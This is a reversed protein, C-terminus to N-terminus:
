VSNAGGFAGGIDAKFPLAFETHGPGIVPMDQWLGTAKAEAADPHSLPNRGPAQEGMVAIAVEHGLDRLRPAFLATLVGYGTKHWPGIGHWLIRSM